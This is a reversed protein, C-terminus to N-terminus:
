WPHALRFGINDLNLTHDHERGRRAAARVNTMSSEWCGGRCVKRRGSSPGYPNISQGEQLYYPGYWDQCWEWVNGAMDHLGLENPAFTKVPTPQGYNKWDKVRYDVGFNAESYLLVDRGNGFRAKKGLERASYEWEAETPLCYKKGTMRNVEQIFAQADDWSATEPCDDGEEFERTDGYTVANFLRHTVLTKSLYFGSVAVEHVPLEDPRGEGFTDGMQFSGGPIYVMGLEMGKIKETYNQM